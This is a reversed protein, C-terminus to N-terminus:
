SVFFCPEDEMFLFCEGTTFDIESSFYCHEALPIPEGEYRLPVQEEFLHPSYAVGTASYGRRYYYHITGNKARLVYMFGYTETGDANMLRYTEPETKRSFCLFRRYPVVGLLERHKWEWEGIDGCYGMSMNEEGDERYKCVDQEYVSVYYGDIKQVRDGPLGFSFVRIGFLPLLILGLIVVALVGGVIMIAREYKAIVRNRCVLEEQTPAADFYSEEVGFYTCLSSLNVESPLGLGNEWKAVTSRSVYIADALQQQSVGRNQRLEKIREGIQM